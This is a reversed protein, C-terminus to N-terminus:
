SELLESLSIESIEDEIKERKEIVEVDILNSIEDREFYDYRTLFIQVFSDIIDPSDAHELIRYKREEKTTEYQTSSLEKKIRDNYTDDNASIFSIRGEEIAKKLGFFAKSKNSVFRTKDVGFLKKTGWIIGIVQVFLDMAAIEKQATTFAERGGSTADIIYKIIKIPYGIDIFHRVWKLLIKIAEHAHEVPKLGKREIGDFVNIELTKYYVEDLDNVGALMVLTVGSDRVGTYAVDTTIILTHYYIDNNPEINKIFDVIDQHGFLVGDEDLPPMGLCKVRYESKTYTKKWFLIQSPEVLPSEESNMQLVKWIGGSEINGTTCCENFFHNRTTWQSFGVCGNFQETLAGLSVKIHEDLIGTMEELILFYFKNHQGALNVPSGRPATKAEVYWSKQFGKIFITKTLIVFFDALFGWRKHRKLAMIRSTAEKFTFNTIQAMTPAQVRIISEQFLLLLMVTISGIIHTKGIGHGSPVILRGGKININDLIERQQHTPNEGSLDFIMFSLGM